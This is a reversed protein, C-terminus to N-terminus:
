YLDIFRVFHFFLPAAYTLSDVRDLIGGHGPIAQSSDKIKLDRKIASITIDGIFGAVSVLLGAFIAYELTLLTLSKYLLVSAIITSIIGGLFGALTKNPSIKPIIKYNGFLSGFIYQMVDNFQTLFIFYFLLGLGLDTHGSTEPLVLLYAMHSLNFVLLMLGWQVTGISKLFGETEGTLELRFPLFLFAYVPIFIIFMGYWNIAIWYYQFVIAIYAWFLVRRDVRRTPIISFYEKLALFSIFGMFVLSVRRGLILALIFITTMIWWSKLRLDLETSAISFNYRHLAINVTTAFILISSMLTIILIQTSDLPM